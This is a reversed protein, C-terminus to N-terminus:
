TAPPGFASSNFGLGELAGQAMEKLRRIGEAESDNAAIDATCNTVVTKLDAVATALDAQRLGLNAM